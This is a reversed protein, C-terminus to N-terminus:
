YFRFSPCICAVLQVSGFYLRRATAMHHAPSTILGSRCSQVKFWRVEFKSNLPAFYWPKRKFGGIVAKLPRFVLVRFQPYATTPKPKFGRNGATIRPYGRNDATLFGSRCSQVKFRRVELKSNSTSRYKSTCFPQAPAVGFPICLAFHNATMRRQPHFPAHNTNM